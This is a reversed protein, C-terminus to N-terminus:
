ELGWNAGAGQRLEPLVSYGVACATAGVAVAFFISRMGFEGVLWGGVAPGLVFASAIVANQVGLFSARTEPRAQTADAVWASAGADSASLGTGLLLRASILFPLSEALGTAVDALGCLAMGGVMLLRRGLRDALSGFPVNRPELGVPIGSIRRLGLPLLLKALSPSSVLLGM